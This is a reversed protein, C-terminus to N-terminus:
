IAWVSRMPLGLRKWHNRITAVIVAPDIKSIHIVISANIYPGLGMMIISFNSLGGGSFLNAFGLLQSSSFLRKLFAALEANDPVPVPVYALLRFIVLLGIVVAVRKRLDKSQWAQRLMALNM